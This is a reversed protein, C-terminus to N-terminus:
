RTEKVELIFNGFGEIELHGIFELVARQFMKSPNEMGRSTYNLINKTEKKKEIRLEKM